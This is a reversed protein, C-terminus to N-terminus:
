RIGGLAVDAKGLVDAGREFIEQGAANGALEFALPVFLEGLEDFLHQLDDRLELGRKRAKNKLRKSMSSCDASSGQATMQKAFGSTREPSKM